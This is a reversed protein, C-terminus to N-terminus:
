HPYENKIKDYLAIRDRNEGFDPIRAGSPTPTRLFREMGPFNHLRNLSDPDEPVYEM